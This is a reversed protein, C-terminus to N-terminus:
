VNNKIYYIVIVILSSFAWQYFSLLPNAAMAARAALPGRVAAPAERPLPPAVAGNAAEHAVGLSVPSPRSPASPCSSATPPGSAPSHRFQCVPSSGPSTPPLQTRGIDRPRCRRPLPSLPRCRRSRRSASTTTSWASPWGRTTPAPDTCPGGPLSLRWPRRRPPTSRAPSFTVPLCSPATPAPAWGGLFSSTCGPWTRWWSSAPSRFRCTPVTTAVAVVPFVDM